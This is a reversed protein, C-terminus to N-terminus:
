STKTAPPVKANAAAPVTAAHDGLPRMCSPCLQQSAVKERRLRDESQIREGPKLQGDYQVAKNSHILGVAQSYPLEIVEDELVADNRGEVFFGSLARLTVRRRPDPRFSDPTLPM